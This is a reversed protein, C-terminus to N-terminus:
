SPSSARAAGAGLLRADRALWAEAEEWSYANELSLMPASTCSPRSARPRSAAWADREPSDASALEPHEAELEQLERM